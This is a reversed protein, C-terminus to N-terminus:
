GGARTLVADCIAVIHRHDTGCCGGLVSMQKLYRSLGLYREGLDVPDGADLTDAEDLEAHSKTSANARVGGVRATWPEATSVAVEFHSPHACNIMYYLPGHATERDVREIAAGLTDGSPLKGDTEVTFSVAVPAGADSAARVIGIAEEPYTMTVATVMDAGAERLAEVQPAHYRRAEDESMRTGTQYGDGRPGVVGNIVIPTEPAAFAAGLGSAWAVSRRNADAVAQPSFGLKAGWDANARWTPTDLVFGVKREVATRLYPVFYRELRQRGEDSLVLPFAAFCPLEIGELFVLSTELGGDALFVPGGPKPLHQSALPM